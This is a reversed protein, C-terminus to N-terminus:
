GGTKCITSSYLQNKKRILITYMGASLSEVDLSWGMIKGEMVVIGSSNVITYTANSLDISNDLYILHGNSVPNPYLEIPKIKLGEVAYIVNFITDSEVSWCMGERVRLSFQGSLKRSKIKLTISTDALKQGLNSWEYVDGSVSSKLFLSDAYFEIVPRKPVPYFTIGITDQLLSKCGNDNFARVIYNGSGTVVISKTNANNSWLIQDADTECIIEVQQGECYETTDPSTIIPNSPLPLVITNIWKSWESKCSNFDIVYVSYSGSQKVHRTRQQYGDQWHYSLYTAPVFLVASDGSCFTTDFLYQIVPAAPKANVKFFVSDSWVSSCGYKNGVKLRTGFATTTKFSQTQEGSLWQYLAYGTPGSVDFTDGECLEKSNYTITPKAPIPHAQIVVTDFASCQNSNTMRVTYTGSSDTTMSNIKSVIQASELHKWEFTNGTAPGAVLRYSPGKCFATDKGLNVSPASYINLNFTDRLVCNNVDRMEVWITSKGLGLKGVNFQNLAGTDNTSWKYQYGQKLQKNLTANGCLFTDNGLNLSMPHLLCPDVTGLAAIESSNLCTDFVAVSAIDMTDDELDNDAFLLVYPNLAFRDDTDQNNGDLILQGNLYYRYYSGLNVSIVLRYWQKTNIPTPTYGTTATGIRGPNTQSNPRIFCEGDNLNNTDTQFFTHWRDFNDVKFDFMLTYRNVSDGGNPSIGHICKYYSGLGIRVATDKKEPGPIWQHTGILKLDKGVTGKTLNSTDQFKWYGSLHPQQAPNLDQAWSNQISNAFCFVILLFHHLQKM